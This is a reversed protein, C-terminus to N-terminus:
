QWDDGDVYKAIERNVEQAKKKGASVKGYHPDTILTMHYLQGM